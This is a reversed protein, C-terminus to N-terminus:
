VKAHRTTIGLGVYGRTMPQNRPDFPAQSSEKQGGVFSGIALGTFAGLPGGIAFGLGALILPTINAPGSDPGETFEALRVSDGGFAAELASMTPTKGWNALPIEESYLNVPM